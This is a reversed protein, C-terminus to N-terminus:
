GGNYDVGKIIIKLSILMKGSIIIKEHNGYKRHSIRSLYQIFCIFINFFEAQKGKAQNANRSNYSKWYFRLRFYQDKWRSLSLYIMSNLLQNVYWSIKFSWYDPLIFWICQSNTLCDRSWKYFSYPSILGIQQHSSNCINSFAILTPSNSSFTLVMLCKFKISSLYTATHTATSCNKSYFSTCKCNRLYSAWKGFDLKRWLSSATWPTRSPSILLIPAPHLPRTRSSPLITTLTSNTYSQNKSRSHHNPFLMMRPYFRKGTRLISSGIM